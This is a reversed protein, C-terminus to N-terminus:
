PAAAAAAVLLDAAVPPLLQQEEKKTSRHEEETKFVTKEMGASMRDEKKVSPMTPKPKGAMGNASVGIKGKDEMVEEGKGGEEPGDGDLMGREGLWCIAELMKRREEEQEKEVLVQYLGKRRGQQEQSRGREPVNGRKGHQRGWTGSKGGNHKQSLDHSFRCDEGRPCRGTRLFQRCLPRNDNANPVVAVPLGKRTPPPVRLPKAPRHTTRSEPASSSESDSDVESDSTTSSRLSSTNDSDLQSDLGSPDTSSSSVSLSDDDSADSADKEANTPSSKPSTPALLAAGSLTPSKSPEADVRLRNKIERNFEAESVKAVTPSRSERKIGHHTSETDRQVGLVKEEAERAKAEEKLAKRRFKEARLRAKTAADLVAKEAGAVEFGNASLTSKESKRRTPSLATATTGLLKGKSVEPSTNRSNGEASEATDPRGNAGKRRGNNRGRNANAVERRARSAERGAQREEARRKKEKEWEQKKREAEKM